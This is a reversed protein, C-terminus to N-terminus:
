SSIYDTLQDITFEHNAIITKVLDGISVMGIVNGNSMVPLYRIRRNTMVAMCQEISQDPKAYIVNTTMVDRVLTSLSARGKLIIERAYLRETVIGVPAKDEVVILAGIDHDSMEKIADYVTADARISFVADGKEALLHKITTMEQRRPWGHIMLM